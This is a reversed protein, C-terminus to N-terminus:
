EVFAAQPGPPGPASPGRGTALTLSAVLKGMAVADPSGISDFEQANCTLTTLVRGGPLPQHAPAARRVESSYYVQIADITTSGELQYLEIGTIPNISAARHYSEVIDLSGAPRGFTDPTLSRGGTHQPTARCTAADAGMSVVSATPLPCFPAPRAASATQRQAFQHQLSQVCSRRATQLLGFRYTLLVRYMGPCAFCVHGLAAAPQVTDLATPWIICKGQAWPSPPPRPPPPSPLPRPSPPKPPPPRPPPSM